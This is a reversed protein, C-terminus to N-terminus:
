RDASRIALVKVERVAHDSWYLIAYGGRVIVEVPAVSRM